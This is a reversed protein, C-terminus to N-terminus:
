LLPANNKPDDLIATFRPDGQLPWLLLSRRVEHVNRAYFADEGTALGRALAALATEKEGLWAYIVADDIAHGPGRVGPLDIIKQRAELAATRNGLMAEAIAVELWVYRNNPATAATARFQDRNKELLPRAKEPAGKVLYAAGLASPAGGIGQTGGLRILEDADGRISAWEALARAVFPDSRRAEPSLGALFKEVAETSGRARFSVRAGAYKQVLTTGPLDLTQRVLAEAEGFMRRSELTNRLSEALMPNRPDLLHAKRYSALARADDGQMRWALRAIVLHTEARNPFLRALREAQAEARPRDDVDIYYNGLAALIVANNPDIREATDLAEKAKARRAESSDFASFAIMHTTGLELWALAFKPDYQVASELLPQAREVGARRNPAAARAERAKLYLDYATLNATPVTELASKEGPSIAAQLKEAITQALESQIAFIDDLPRDYPPPSWVHLGTRGDILQCVLRVKGASRRVSGELVYAVGLEQAIQQIKKTTGRYEMVSTRSIVGLERINALTTLIDDHVGDAFFANEKDDSLNTFPLVAISKATEAGIPRAASPREPEPARQRWVIAGGALVLAAATVALPWRLGRTAGPKEKAVPFPARTQRELLTRVRDVFDTNPVGRELRTWQVRLFSDPVLAGEEPTDDIAIPLLFATGEAMLHTREDALKWELRFYAERRAQTAASIIPIFLACAKIQRRIKQDWADGGELGDQDFWVEVDFAALADAIRRAAALDERAYSLFVAGRPASREASM